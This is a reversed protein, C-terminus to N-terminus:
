TLILYKFFSQGAVGRLHLPCRKALPCLVTILNELDDFDSFGFSDQQESRAGVHQANGPTVSQVKLEPKMM